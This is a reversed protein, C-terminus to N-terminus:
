EWDGYYDDEVISLQARLDDIECMFGDALTTMKRYEQELELYKNQMNEYQEDLYILVFDPANDKLWMAAYEDLEEKTLDNINM